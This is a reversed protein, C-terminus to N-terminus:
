GPAASAVEEAVREIKALRALAPRSLIQRIDHLAVLLEEIGDRPAEDGAYIGPAPCRSRGGDV